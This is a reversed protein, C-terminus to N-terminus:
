IEKSKNNQFATKQMPDTEFNGAYHHTNLQTEVNKAIKYFDILFPQFIIGFDNKSHPPDSETYVAELKRSKAVSIMSKLIEFNAEFIEFKAEFIESKTCFKKLIELNM